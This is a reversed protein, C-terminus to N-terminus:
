LCGVLNKKGPIEGVGILGTLTVTNEATRAGRLVFAISLMSVSVIHRLGFAPRM